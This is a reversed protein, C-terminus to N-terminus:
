VIPARRSGEAVVGAANPDDPTILPTIPRGHDILFGVRKGPRRPDLSAWVGPNATGWIRARGNLLGLSVRTVHRIAEYPIRKAGWPIYYGHIVLERDTLEIWRDRYPTTMQWVGGDLSQRNTPGTTLTPNVIVIKTL